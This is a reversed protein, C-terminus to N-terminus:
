KEEGDMKAGCHPCFKSSFQLGNTSLAYEGCESCTWGFGDFGWEGHRVEVTNDARVFSSCDDRINQETDYIEGGSSDCVYYHICDKCTM